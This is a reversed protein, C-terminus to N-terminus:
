NMIIIECSSIKDMRSIQQVVLEIYNVSSFQISLFHNFAFKLLKKLVVILFFSVYFSLSLNYIGNTFTYSVHLQHELSFFEINTLM